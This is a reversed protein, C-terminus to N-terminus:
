KHHQKLIVGPINLHEAEELTDEIWSEMVKIHLKSKPKGKKLSVKVANRNQLYM